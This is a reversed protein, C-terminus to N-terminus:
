MSVFVHYANKLPVYDDITSAASFASGNTSAVHSHSIQLGNTKHTPADNVLKHANDCSELIEFSRSAYFNTYSSM